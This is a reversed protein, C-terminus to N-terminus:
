LKDIYNLALDLMFIDLFFILAECENQCYWLNYNRVADSTFFANKDNCAIYLSGEKRVTRELLYVLKDKILNHPLTTYLTSFDYAALSSARFSLSKLKNLVECLNKISWFLNKGSREYVKECYKIVHKKITILCSTLM